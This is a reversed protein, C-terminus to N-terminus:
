ISLVRALHILSKDGPKIKTTVESLPVEVIKGALTGIMLNNKGAMLAMVAAYGLKSALIRDNATPSGGRQQHGLISVKADLGSKKRISDALDYARGPKQGEATILISSTKGRARSEKLKEVIKDVPIINEPTM